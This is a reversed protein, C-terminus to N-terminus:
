VFNGSGFLFEIYDAQEGGQIIMKKLLKLPINDKIDINVLKFIMRSFYDALTEIIKIDINKGKSKERNFAEMTEFNFSIKQLSIIGFKYIDDYTMYGKSKEDLIEFFLDLKDERSSNKLTLMGNVYNELSLYKNNSKNNFVQFLKKALIMGQQNIKTNCNYFSDLDLGTKDLNIDRNKAMSLLLMNKFEIFVDYLLKRIYVKNDLDPLNFVLLDHYLKDIRDIAMHTHNNENINQSILNKGPFTYKKANPDKSENIIINTKINEKKAREKNYNYFIKKFERPTNIISSQYNIENKKNELDTYSSKIKKRILKNENLIKSKLKNFYELIEKKSKKKKNEKIFYKADYKKRFSWYENVYKNNYLFMGNKDKLFNNKITESISLNSLEYNDMNKKYSRAKNIKDIKVFDNYRLINVYSFNTDSFSGKMGKLLSKKIDESQNIKFKNSKKTIATKQPFFNKLSNRPTHLLSRLEIFKTGPLLTNNSQASNFQGLIKSKNFPNLNFSNSKGFSNDNSLISNMDNNNMENKFLDKKGKLLCKKILITKKLSENKFISKNNDKPLILQRNLSITKFQYDNIPNEYLQNM